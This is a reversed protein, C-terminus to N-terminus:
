NGNACARSYADLDAGRLGYGAGQHLCRTARDGHTNLRRQRVPGAEPPLGETAPGRILPPQPPPPLPAPIRNELDPPPPVFQALAPPAALACGAAFMICRIWNM